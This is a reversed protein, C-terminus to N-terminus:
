KVILPHILILARMRRGHALIFFLCVVVVFFVSASLYCLNEGGWVGGGGTEGGKETEPM